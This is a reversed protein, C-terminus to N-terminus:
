PADPVQSRSLGVRITAAVVRPEDIVQRWSFRLVEYGAAVLQTQRRRDHEFNARGRHFRYGDTEVILRADRWLFDVDCQGGDTARGATRTSRGAAGAAQGAGVAAPPVAVTVNVEPSPLRHRRCLALFRQELESRAPELDGLDIDDVPYGLIEAQRRASNLQPL